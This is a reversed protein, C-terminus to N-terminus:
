ELTFTKAIEILLEEDLDKDWVLFEVWEGDKAEGLDLYYREIEKGKYLYKAKGYIASNSLVASTSVDIYKFDSYFSNSENSGTREYSIMIPKDDCTIYIIGDEISYEWDNPIRLTGCKEIKLVRWDDTTNSCGCLLLVLAVVVCFCRRM